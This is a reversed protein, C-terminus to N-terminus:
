DIEKHKRSAKLGGSIIRPLLNRKRIEFLPQSGLRDGIGRKSDGRNHILSIEVVYPLCHRRIGRVQSKRPQHLFLNTRQAAFHPKLRAVPCPRGRRCAPWVNGNPLSSASALAYGRHRERVRKDGTVDRKGVLLSLLADGRLQAYDNLDEYGLVMAYLRQWVLKHVNHELSAHNHYNVFYGAVRATLGTRKDVERLLVGGADSSTRGGDFRGSVSRRGLPRFELQEGSCQTEM